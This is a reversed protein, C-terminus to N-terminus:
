QVHTTQQREQIGVAQLIACNENSRAITAQGKPRIVGSGYSNFAERAETRM